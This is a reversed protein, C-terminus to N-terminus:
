RTMNNLIFNAIREDSKLVLASELKERAKLADMKMKLMLDKKSLTNETLGLKNTICMDQGLLNPQYSIIKKGMLYAHLLAMSNMGIVTDFASLVDYLNGEIANDKYINRLEEGDKPHFKISFDLNLDKLVDICDSLFDFETYGLSDGHLLSLPQSVLLVKENKIFRALGPHGLVRIIENPVGESIAEKQALKDMVVFDDPYILRGNFLFRSRYNSWYDLVAITRVHHAKCLDIMELELSNGWSTGTVLVAVGQNNLAYEINMRADSERCGNAEALKAAPGVCYFQFVVKSHEFFKVVPSLVDYGGPDHCLFIIKKMM